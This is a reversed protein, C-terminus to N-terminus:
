QQPPQPKPQQPVPLVRPAPATVVGQLPMGPVPGPPPQVPATEPGVQQDPPMSGPPMPRFGPPGGPPNMGPPFGMPTQVVGEDEGGPAGVMTPPMQMPEPVSAPVAPANLRPPPGALRPAGSSPSMVVIRDFASAGLLGAPRPAVIYGSASRLLIELAQKEPLADIQLTVPTAPLRDAGIVRTQGVRAWEDLIQRVTANTAAITVRGDKLAVTVDAAAPPDISLLLVAGLCSFWRVSVTYPPPQPNCVM